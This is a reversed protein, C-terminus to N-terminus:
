KPDSGTDPVTAKYIVAEGTLQYGGTAAPVLVSDGKQLMLTDDDNGTKLTAHGKMLLLMEVNRQGQSVHSKGEAITVKSLCFEKAPTIYRAETPSVAQATMVGPNRPEFLLVRMLEAPDIHKPTLGGRLVNDSNAMLEIGVGDLYAHLQGAPLYMAEGPALCVLNLIVPALIGIDGPYAKQLKILWTSIPDTPRDNKARDMAEAIAKEKEATPMNLMSEFLLRLAESPALARMSALIKAFTDPCYQGLQRHLDEITRFGNVGWFETLACIVEPKHNADRYNRHPAGLPIGAQNERDYGRRAQVRNPHAQISLPEAAALVKFLFPLQRDFRRSVSRGLIEEPFRDILENLAVSQDGTVVMSPSKPHAGMWMEAEPETTPHTRGTLDAIATRSGWAYHQVPNKLRQVSGTDITM